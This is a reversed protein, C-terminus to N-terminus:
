RAMAADEIVLQVSNRGNWNDSRLTGAIHLLAGESNLLAYGLESDAERFAMAKLKAGNEGVLFCRVHGMGVIDAKAVRVAAIAFRPEENGAGFPGCRRIVEILNVTAGGADLAGDLELVPVPAEGGLQAEVRERLFAKLEDIREAPVSFGAAMAHGGGPTLIGAQRAAIIAAGLDVGHISRGSGKGIGNEISVACAPRNYREKLRGAVIGVVGPHWDEGAVFLFPLGPDPASEVMEIASLLVVAEVEQRQKNCENLQRALDAAEEQNDTSLLRAGLAAGGVRGGANVRPGLVYGAHFAEPRERVGAVDALAALGPNSRGAMVKLGQSVLARNIGKLPVVDCVTGLAVLDLLQLLDPERQGDKYWGLNRLERNTAVALLFAVGVAALHGFTRDEDLRNPNVVAAARPLRPEAEHHDIVVVDLGIEAATELPLFATIGCDVTVVLSIGEAKLKRMAEDNPGYGEKVRDPIYIRAERGTARLFRALLASSTAGDVDYDGFIAINEGTTVATALRKAAKDMDKLVFPDPLHDRLTPSLFAEAEELGVGRAALVRGVIEPLRLRQSLALATREDGARSRWLRGTFSREVGLLMAGGRTYNM